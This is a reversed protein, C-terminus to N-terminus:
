SKLDSATSESSGPEQTEGRKFLGVVQKRFYIFLSGALAGLPALLQLLFGGANPDIYAECRAQLGLLLVMAMLVITTLKM